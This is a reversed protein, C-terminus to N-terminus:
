PSALPRSRSFANPSNGAAHHTLCDLFALALLAGAPETLTPLLVSLTASGSLERDNSDTIAFLKGGVKEGADRAAQLAEAKLHFRSGSLMLVGTGSQLLPFLVDRFHLLEYGAVPLGALVELHYAAQLAVPHYLGGGILVVRPLSRLEGALARAADTFQNQVREINEPLKELETEQAELLPVRRKLARAAALALFLMAAHQCFASQIGDAAAEHLYMPAVGDALKGLRSMPNTTVAWVIAGRDKARQAAELTKESEGSPSIAILLSRFTLASLTYASFVGPTRVVVPLGLLSEFAYAGTLGAWCSSGAGIIFVPREGWAAHRVLADYQPRGKAWLM